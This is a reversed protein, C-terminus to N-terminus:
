KAQDNTVFSFLKMVNVGSRRAQRVGHHPQLPEDARNSSPLNPHRRGLAHSGSFLPLSFIM